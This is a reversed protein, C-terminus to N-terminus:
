VKGSPYTLFQEIHEYSGYYNQKFAYRLMQWYGDLILYSQEEKTAAFIEPLYRHSLHPYRHHVQHYNINSWLWSMLPNTLVMWSDVKQMETVPLSKQGQAPIAHHEGINRVAFVSPMIIFTPIVTYWLSIGLKPILYFYFALALSLFAVDKGAEIREKVFGGFLRTMLIKYRLGLGMLPGFTLALWLPHNNMPEEPDLQPQHTYRHHTLHFDRFDYYPLLVMALLIGGWFDNWFRNKFLTWHTGEHALVGLGMIVVANFTALAVILLGKLLWPLFSYPTLLYADISNVSTHTLFFSGVLLSIFLLSKLLNELEPLVQESHKPVKFNSM